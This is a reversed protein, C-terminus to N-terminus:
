IAFARTPSQNTSNGEAWLLGLDWNISGQPFIKGGACGCIGWTVQFAFSLASLDWLKNVIFEFPDWCEVQLDGSDSHGGSSFLAHCSLLLVEHINIEM